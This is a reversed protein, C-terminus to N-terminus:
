LNAIDPPLVRAPQGAWPLELRHAPRPDSKKTKSPTSEHERVLQHFREKASVHLRGSPPSFSAQVPRTAVNIERVEGFIDTGTVAIAKFIEGEEATKM